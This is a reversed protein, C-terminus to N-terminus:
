DWQPKKRNAKKVAQNQKGALRKQLALKPIKTPKRIKDVHLAAKLLAVAKVVCHAKNLLQSREEQSVIHLAGEQDLRNALRQEVLAKEDKNLFPVERIALILEVKSSVKNVHQGGSGGSRSTKFQANKLIDEKVPVM